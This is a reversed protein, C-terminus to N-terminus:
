ILLDATLGDPFAEVEVLLDVVVTVPLDETFGEFPLLAVVVLLDPVVTVFLDTVFGGDSLLVTVVLFDPVETVFLATDFGDISFFVTVERLDGAVTVFLDATFGEEPCFARVLLDAFWDFDVTTFEEFRLTLDSFAIFFSLLFFSESLLSDVRLYCCNM